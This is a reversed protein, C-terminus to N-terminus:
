CASTARYPFAALWRRSSVAPLSVASFGWECETYGLQFPTEVVELATSAVVDDSGTPDFFTWREIRIIGRLRVGGADAVRADCRSRGAHDLNQM